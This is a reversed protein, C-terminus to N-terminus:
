SYYASYDASYNKRNAIARRMRSFFFDQYAREYEFALYYYTEEDKMLNSKKATLNVPCLRDDAYEYVDFSREMDRLYQRNDASIFGSNAKFMQLERAFAVKNPANYTSETEETLYSVTEREHQLTMEFKGTCRMSDFVGWSNRFRFYRTHDHYKPDLEFTVYDSIVEDDENELYVKWKAVDGGLLSQLGLEAYGVSFEIVTWPTITIEETIAVITENDGDSDWIVMKLTAKQYNATPDQFMFFLSEKSTRDTYRSTDAWTMFMEQTTTLSFFDISSLNNYVLDERSLGGPIAYRFSDGYTRDLFVGNVRDVFVVRYKCIYDHYVWYNGALSNNFRPPSAMLLNAYIYESVDFRVNGSADVPKYEEGLLTTGNKYVRMLVGEVEDAAPAVGSVDTFITVGTITTSIQSIDYVPSATIATLVIDADDIDIEYDDLFDKDNILYDYCAQAWDAASYGGDAVPLHDKTSPSAKLTFNREAGNQEITVSHDANTDIGTFRIRIVSKIGGTGSGPDSTLLYRMPNGAFSVLYPHTTINM